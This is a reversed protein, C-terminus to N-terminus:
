AYAESVRRYVQFSVERRDLEPSTQVPELIQLAVQVKKLRLVEKLHPLFEMDGYWCLLDRSERGFPRGDVLLYKLCFPIVTKQSHIASDFLSKKFPLVQEGNSSTGEPFILVNMGRNMTQRIEEIEGQLNNRSRREVFLSGGSRAILGLVSDRVEVSTVFVVPSISGLIVIDLYSLHNSVMLCGATPPLNRRGFLHVEIGLIRLGWKCHLHLFYAQFKRKQFRGIPLSLSFCWFVFLSFLASSLLMGKVTSRFARLFGM